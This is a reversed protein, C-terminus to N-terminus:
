GIVRCGPVSWPASACAAGGAVLGGVVFRELFANLMGVRRNGGIHHNAQDLEGVVEKILLEALQLLGKHLIAAQALM